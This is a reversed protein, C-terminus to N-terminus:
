KERFMRGSSSEGADLLGRDRAPTDVTPLKIPLRGVVQEIAWDIPVHAFDKDATPGYSNLVAEAPQRRGVDSAEVGALRDLQELRPETPLVTTREVTTAMDSQRPQEAAREAHEFFMRIGFLGLPVFVAAIAIATLVGGASIDTPEFRVRPHEIRGDPHQIEVPLAPDCVSEPAPSSPPPSGTLQPNLSEVPEDAM